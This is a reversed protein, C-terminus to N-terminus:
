LVYRFDKNEFETTDRMGAEDSQAKDAPGYHSDRYRNVTFLYALETLLYLSLHSLAPLYRAFGFPM